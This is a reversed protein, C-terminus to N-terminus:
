FVGKTGLSGTSSARRLGRGGLRNGTALNHKASTGSNSAIGFKTAQTHKQSTPAAARGTIPPKGINRGM